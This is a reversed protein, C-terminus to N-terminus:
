FKLSLNLLPLHDTMLFLQLIAEVLVRKWSHIRIWLFQLQLYHKSLYARQLFLTNFINSWKLTYNREVLPLRLSKEDPLMVSEEIARRILWKNFFYYYYFVLFSSLSPFLFLSLFLPLFSSFVVVCDLYKKILLQVMSIIYYYLFQRNPSLVSSWQGPTTNINIDYKQISKTKHQMNSCSLNLFLLKRWVEEGFTNQSTEIKHGGSIM